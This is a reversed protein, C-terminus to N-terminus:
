YGLNLRYSGPSKSKIKCYAINQHRRIQIRIQIRIKTEAIARVAVGM